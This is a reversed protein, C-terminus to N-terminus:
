PCEKSGAHAGSALQHLTRICLELASRQSLTGRRSQMEAEQRGQIFAETLLRKRQRSVRRIDSRELLRDLLRLDAGCDVKEGDPSEVPGADHKALLDTRQQSVRRIYSCEFLEVFLSVDDDCDVKNGDPSEVVLRAGQAALLRVMEDTREENCLFTVMATALPSGYASASFLDPDTAPHELVRAAADLEDAAVAHHLASGAFRSHPGTVQNPDTGPWSLLVDLKNMQDTMRKSPRSVCLALPSLKDVANCLGPRAGAELLAKVSDAYPSMLVARSLPLFWEDQYRNLNFLQTALVLRTWDPEIITHLFCGNVLDLELSDLIPRGNLEDQRSKLQQLGALVKFAVPLNRAVLSRELITLVTYPCSASQCWTADIARCKLVFTLPDDQAPDPLPLGHAYVSCHPSITHVFFDNMRATDHLAALTEESVGEKSSLSRMAIELQEAQTLPAADGQASDLTRHALSVAGPSHTLSAVDSDSSSSPVSLAGAERQLLQQPGVGRVARQDSSSAALRDPSQGELGQAVPQPSHEAATPPLPPSNVSHM